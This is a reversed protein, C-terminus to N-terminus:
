KKIHKMTNIRNVIFSEINKGSLKGGVIMSNGKSQTQNYNFDFYNNGSFLKDIIDTSRLMNNNNGIKKKKMINGFYNKSSNLRQQNFMLLKQDISNVHQLKHVKAVKAFNHKFNNPVDNNFSFNGYIKPKHKGNNKKNHNERQTKPSIENLKRKSNSSKNKITSISRETLNGKMNIKSPQNESNYRSTPCYNVKNNQHVVNANNSKNNNKQFINKTIKKMNQNKINASTNSNSKSSNNNSSNKSIKNIYKKGNNNKNHNNANKILINNEIDYKPNYLRETKPGGNNLSFNSTNIDNIQKGPCEKFADSKKKTSIKKESIKNKLKKKINNKINKLHKKNSNVKNAYVYIEPEEENTNENDSICNNLNNFNLQFKPAKDRIKSSDAINLCNNNPLISLNGNKINNLNIKIDTTNIINDKSNSSNNSNNTKNIGSFNLNFSIKPAIMKTKQENKNINEKFHLNSINLNPIMDIDNYKNQCINESNKVKHGLNNKYNVNKTRVFTLTDKNSEIESRLLDVRLDVVKGEPIIDMDQGYHKYYSVIYHKVIPCSVPLFLSSFEVALYHFNEGNIKKNNKDKALFRLETAICFYAVTLMVVKELIADRLLEYKPDSDLDLDEFNLASLYMINGINLLQIWDDEKISSGFIHRINNALSSKSNYINIESLRYNLYSYFKSQYISFNDGIESFYSPTYPSEGLKEKLKHSKSSSSISNPNNRIQLVKNNLENIIKYSMKIKENFITEDNEENKKNNSNIIQNKNHKKDLFKEKMQIYLYNTKILNDECMLSALRAHKLADVHRNAQSLVACMQLHFKASFRLELIFDGLLAYKSQNEKISKIFFQDKIKIHHKSELSSDFHHIVAELYSICSEFDKLKQQCCALNHLIIILMKKDFNFKSEIANTELFMEIKKLIELAEETKEDFILEVSKNNYEKIKNSNLNLNLDLNNLSNTDNKESDEQSNLIINQINNGKQM